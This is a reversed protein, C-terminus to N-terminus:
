SRCDLNGREGPHEHAHQSLRRRCSLLICLKESSEIDGEKFSRSLADPNETGVGTCAAAIGCASAPLSTIAVAWVPVPLVSATRTGAISFINLCSVSPM